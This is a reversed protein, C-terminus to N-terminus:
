VAAKFRRGVEAWDVVEFFAEVYEQRKNRYKLYYAHEWVDCGLVPVRGFSLPCDQNPLSSLELGGDKVCLWVWGSGFRDLAVEVWKKRFGDFSGFESGVADGLEGEPEGGGEPGLVSWFLSHNYHGGGNNRVAKRVDDPLTKLGILLDEISKGEYPTGGIAENLKDVYTQHHKGHHIEMTEADIYPELADVPYPLKPLKFPATKKAPGGSEEAMMQMHIIKM